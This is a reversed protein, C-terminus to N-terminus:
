GNEVTKKKRYSITREKGESCKWLITGDTLIDFRLWDREVEPTSSAVIIATRREM